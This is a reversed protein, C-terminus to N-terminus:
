KEGMKALCRGKARDHVSAMGGWDDRVACLLYLAGFPAGKCRGREFGLKSNFIFVWVM